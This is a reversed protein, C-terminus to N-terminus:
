NTVELTPAPTWRLHTLQSAKERTEAIFGPEFPRLTWDIRKEDRNLKEFIEAARQGLLTSDVLQLARQRGGRIAVERHGIAERFEDLVREQLQPPIEEFRSVAAFIREVEDNELNELLSRVRESSISLILIAAKESGTLQEYQLAAVVLSGPGFSGLAM